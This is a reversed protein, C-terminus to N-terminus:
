LTYCPPETCLFGVCAVSIWDNSLIIQTSFSPEWLDQGCESRRLLLAKRTACCTSQVAQCAGYRTTTAM